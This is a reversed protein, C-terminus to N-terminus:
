ANEYADNMIEKLENLQLKRHEGAMDLDVNLQKIALMARHELEVPLYYIREFILKYPSM